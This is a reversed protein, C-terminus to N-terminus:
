SEAFEIKKFYKKLSEIKIETGRGHPLARVWPDEQHTKEMLGIASFSKFMNYIQFVLDLSDQNSFAAVDVISSSTLGNSGSSKFFEYVSPVVPGYMWAEIKEDFLPEDFIALHYGQVYYLLKQLKLNTLLEGGAGLDKEAFGILERSVSLANM